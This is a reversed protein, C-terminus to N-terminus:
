IRQKVIAPYYKFNWCYIFGFFINFYTVNSIKTYTIQYVSMYGRILNILTAIEYPNNIMPTGSLLIIKADKAAM